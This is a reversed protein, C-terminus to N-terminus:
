GRHPLKEKGVGNHIAGAPCDKVCRGCQICEMPMIGKALDVNMPCVSACKGCGVCRHGDVRYALPAIRNFLGYIAGLPCLFKCFPRYLFLGLVSLGLLLAFKWGFLFGLQGRLAQKAAVLPIGGMLTGSPCIFKCFAPSGLGFENVAFLPLYLVFVALVLFKGHRLVRDLPIKRLHQKPFIKHLLDQFLGFPCLFGCVFRGFAAGFLLLFGLVYLPFSPRRETLAAQLAGIPCSGVAGPCSYCNLGPVCGGKLPGRYISGTLFGRLHGNTLAVFGLQIWTRFRHM